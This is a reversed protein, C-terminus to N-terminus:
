YEGESGSGSRGPICATSQHAVPASVTLTAPADASSREWIHVSHVGLRTITEELIEDCAAEGLACRAAAFAQYRSDRALQRLMEPSIGTMLLEECLIRLMLVTDGEVIGGELSMPHDPEAPRMSPHIDGHQHDHHHSM